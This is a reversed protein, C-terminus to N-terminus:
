RRIGLFGEALLLELVRADRIAMSDEWADGHPRRNAAAARAPDEWGPSFGQEAEYADLALAAMEPAADHFYYFNEQEFVEGADGRQVRIVRGYPKVSEPPVTLGAEERVERILAAIPSEGPEIGGGPFKYYDYRQNHVLLIRGDRILIGRASPRVVRRAAPDYDKKDMTFLLRM